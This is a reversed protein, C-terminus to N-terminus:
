TSPGKPYIVRINNFLDVKPEGHYGVLLCSFISGQINPFIIEQLIGEEYLAVVLFVM